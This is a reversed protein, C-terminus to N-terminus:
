TTFVAVRAAVVVVSAEDSFGDGTPCDTVNVAAIATGLPSVVAGVPLTENISPAVDSPLPTSFPLAWAAYPVEVRLAPDCEMVATYAPSEFKAPEVDDTSVWTTPVGLKVSLKFGVVTVTVAPSVPFVVTLTRGAEPKLWCTLKAQEPSGAADVHLKEGDVTVGLPFPAAVVVRVTAVSTDVATRWLGTGNPCRPHFSVEPIETPIRSKPRPPRKLERRLHLLTKRATIRAPARPVMSPPQPPPLPPPPPPPPPAEFVGVPVVVTVTVAVEPFRVWVAASVRM